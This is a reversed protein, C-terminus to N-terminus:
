EPFVSSFFCDLIFVVYVFSISIQGKNYYSLHNVSNMQLPIDQGDKTWKKTQVLELCQARNILMRRQHINQGTHKNHGYVGCYSSEVTKTVRCGFGSINKVKQIQMIVMDQTKDHGHHSYDCSRHQVFKSDKPNSCDFATLHADSEAVILNPLLLLGIVLKM